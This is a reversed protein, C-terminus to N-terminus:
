PVVPFWFDVAGDDHLTVDAWGATFDMASRRRFENALADNEETFDLPTARIRLSGNGENWIEFVRMQQPWDTLSSTETEFFAHGTTPTVAAARFKHTHAGVHMVVHPYQALFERWEDALMAGDQGTGAFGGGDTFSPPPHHSFLLVYKGQAEAEELLPKVRAEVDARILLGDAGGTPATTDLVIFRVPAGPVDYAYFAKGNTKAGSAALGHGDKTASIFDLLDAGVMPERRSDAVVTTTIPQNPKSWDIAGLEAKTGVSSARISASISFNGQNLTDHNGTVWLWPVKLGESSLPDKPDNGPGAVPDDDDGSDCEVEAGDLIDRFWGAENGQANDSNDGGLVVVNVPLSAHLKNITRVAANLANCGWAEQPRYAGGTAGITDLSVVRTPSEDDALQTDALHVFRALLVPSSGPSPAAGGDLTLDRRVIGPGMTVDAFGKSKLWDRNAGVNPSRGSQPEQAHSLHWSTETALPASSPEPLKPTGGDSDNPVNGCSSAVALALITFKSKM